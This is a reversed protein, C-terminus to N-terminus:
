GGPDFVRLCGTVCLYAKAGTDQPWGSSLCAWPCLLWLPLLWSSPTHEPVLFWCRGVNGLPAPCTVGLSGSFLFASSGTGSSPVEVCSSTFDTLHLANIPKRQFHRHAGNMCVAMHTFQVHTCSLPLTYSPHCHGDGSLFVPQPTEVNHAERLTQIVKYHM